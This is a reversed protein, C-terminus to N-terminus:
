NEARKRHRHGASLSRISINFAPSINKLLKDSPLTNLIDSKKAWGRRAQAELDAKDSFYRFFNLYLNQYDQWSKRAEKDEVPNNKHSYGPNIGFM